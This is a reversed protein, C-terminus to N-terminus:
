DGKSQNKVYSKKYEKHRKKDYKKVIKKFYKKYEGDTVEFNQVFENLNFKDVIFQLSKIAMIREYDDFYSNSNEISMMIEDIYKTNSM